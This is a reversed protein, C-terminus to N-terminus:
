DSFLTRLLGEGFVIILFLLMMLYIGFGLIWAAGCALLGYYWKNSKLIGFQQLCFVVVVYAIM